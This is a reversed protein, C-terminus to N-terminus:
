KGGEIQRLWEDIVADGYQQRLLNLEEAGFSALIKPDPKPLPVMDKLIRSAEFMQEAANRRVTTMFDDRAM